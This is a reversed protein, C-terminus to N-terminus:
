RLLRINVLVTRALSITDVVRKVRENEQLIGPLGRIGVHQRQVIGGNWRARKNYRLPLVLRSGSGSETQIRPRVNSAIHNPAEPYEFIVFLCRLHLNSSGTNWTTLAKSCRLVLLM